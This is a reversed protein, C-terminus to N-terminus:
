RLWLSTLTGVIQYCLFRIRLDDDKDKTQKRRLKIKEVKLRLDNDLLKIKYYLLMPVKFHTKGLLDAVENIDNAGM